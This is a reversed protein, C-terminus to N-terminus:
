TFVQHTATGCGIGYILSAANIEIGTIPTYPSGSTTSMLCAALVLVLLLALALFGLFTRKVGPAKRATAELKM